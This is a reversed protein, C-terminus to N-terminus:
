PIPHVEYKTALRIGRQQGNKSSEIRLSGEVSASVDEIPILYVKGNDPCYVAFSEIQGRYSQRNGGHHAQNSCTNFRVAGDRLRGTKAQVRDFGGEPRALVFDYRESGGWPMLVTYGSGLLAALV